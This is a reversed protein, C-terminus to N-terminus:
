FCVLLSKSVFIVQVDFCACAICAFQREMHWKGKTCNCKYNGPTNQCGDSNVCTGIECEDMDVTCTVGTWGNPCICVGDQCIGNNQCPNSDSTFYGDM